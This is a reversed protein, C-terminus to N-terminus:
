LTESTHTEETEAKNTETQEQEEDKSKDTECIKGQWFLNKTREFGSQKIYTRMNEAMKQERELCRKCVRKGKVVPYGCFYCKQPDIREEYTVGGNDRHKERKRKNIKYQCLKCRQTNGAPRKGCEICIGKAKREERVRKIYKRMQENRMKRKEETWKKRRERAKEAERDLCNICLAKGRVPDGGCKPCRGHEKYWDYIEKSM